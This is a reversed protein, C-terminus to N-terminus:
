THSIKGPLIDFYASNQLAVIFNRTFVSDDAAVVVTPLNKPDTNIAFGFLILQLLPLGIMMGFTVRDRKMQTFEKLIIAWLRQWSFSFTM